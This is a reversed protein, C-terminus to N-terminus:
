TPTSRRGRLEEYRYCDVTHDNVLGVAQMFAYITTPGVFRFGRRLLEKSLAKSEDTLAPIEGLERWRNVIPQGGVFSWVLDPLGGSRRLDLVARANSITSEIKGRHRVIGPDALLREVDAAGYAAVVDADFDAFGRRYGERKRLITTWSLGAQAGELTIFEFLVAEDRVPRGWDEDHYRRMLDDAWDGGWACRTRGDHFTNATM